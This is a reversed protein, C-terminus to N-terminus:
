PWVPRGDLWVEVRRADELVGVATTKTRTADPQGSGRPITVKTQEVVARRHLPVDISVVPTVDHRLPLRVNFPVMRGDIVVEVNALQATAEPAAAVEVPAALERVAAGQDDTLRLRLLAPYLTPRTM